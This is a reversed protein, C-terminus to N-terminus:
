KMHLNGLVFRHAEVLQVAVDRRDRFLHQRLNEALQGGIAYDTTFQERINRGARFVRHRVEASGKQWVDLGEDVPTAIIKFLYHFVSLLM